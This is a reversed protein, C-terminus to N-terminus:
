SLTDVTPHGVSAHETPLVVHIQPPEPSRCLLKEDNWRHQLYGVESSTDNIRILVGKTPRLTNTGSRPSGGTVRRASINATKVFNSDM